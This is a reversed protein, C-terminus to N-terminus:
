GTMVQEDPLKDKARLPGFGCEEAIDEFVDLISEVNADVSQSIGFVYPAGAAEQKYAELHDVMDLLIRLWANSDNDVLWGYRGLERYPAGNSAVWPIKMVMYELVKIWSRRQDYAGHLPAIGIDFDALAQPWRHFPVWPRLIKQRKPIPLKDYVRKDGQIVIRVNPREKCLARLARAVGDEHFSQVHSLSGGWGIYIGEHAAPHVSSYHELDIYNPLYHMNAVASFDECLLKSPATAGHVMRLGFEFQKLPHPEIKRWKGAGGQHQEWVLGQRWFSYNKATSPILHYADDFDAIVLKNRTKWYRIAQLVPGFLNRQVVIVDAAELLAETRGKPNVFDLISILAADHRKTRRIARVPISCRWESCNWEEKTDAYVYVVNM